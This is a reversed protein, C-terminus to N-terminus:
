YSQQIAQASYNLKGTHGTGSLATLTVQVQGTDTCSFTVQGDGVAERVVEWKENSSNNPNYILMLTGTEAADASNTTRYITYKVYAGRVESTPFALSPVDTATANPVSDITFSRASVDYTGVVGSLADEVAEAFQILPPAYNPASGSNPFEIVTGQITVDPM